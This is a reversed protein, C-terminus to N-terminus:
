SIDPANKNTRFCTTSSIVLHCKRFKRSINQAITTINSFIDLPLIHERVDRSKNM